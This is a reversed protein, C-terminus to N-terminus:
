NPLARPWNELHNMSGNKLFLVYLSIYGSIKDFIRLTMPFIQFFACDSGKSLRLTNAVNWIKEDRPLSVIFYKIQVQFVWMGKSALTRPGGFHRSIRRVPILRSSILYPSEPQWKVNTIAYTRLQTKSHSIKPTLIHGTLQKDEVEWFKFTPRARPAICGLIASRRSDIFRSCSDSV